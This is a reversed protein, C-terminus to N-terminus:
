LNSLNTHWILGGGLVLCGWGGLLLDLGLIYPRKYAPHKNNPTPNKIILPFPYKEVAAQNKTQHLAVPFTCQLQAIHHGNFIGQRWNMSRSLFDRGDDASVCPWGQVWHEPGPLYVGAHKELNMIMRTRLLSWSGLMGNNHMSKPHPYFLSIKDQGQKPTPQCPPHPASQLRMVGSPGLVWIHHRLAGFAM